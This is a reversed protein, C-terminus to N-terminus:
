VRPSRYFVCVRVPAARPAVNHQRIVLDTLRRNEGPLLPPRRTTRPRVQGVLDSDALIKLGDSSALLLELLHCGVKIYKVTAM